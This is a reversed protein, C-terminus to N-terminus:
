LPLGAQIMKGTGEESSYNGSCLVGSSFDAQLSELSFDLSTLQLPEGWTLSSFLPHIGGFSTVHIGWWQAQLQAEAVIFVNTMLVMISCPRLVAKMDKNINEKNKKWGPPHSPSWASVPLLLFLGLGPLCQSPYSLYSSKVPHSKLAKSHILFVKDHSWLNQFNFPFYYYRELINKFSPSPLLLLTSKGARPSLHYLEKINTICWTWVTGFWTWVTGSKRIM